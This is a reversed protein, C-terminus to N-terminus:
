AIRTSGHRRAIASVENTPNPSPRCLDFPRSITENASTFSIIAKDGNNLLVQRKLRSSERCCVLNVVEPIDISTDLMDVSIAIHPAKTEASLSDITVARYGDIGGCDEAQRYGALM